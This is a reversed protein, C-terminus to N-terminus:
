VLCFAVQLVSNMQAEVDVSMEVETTYELNMVLFGEEEAEEGLGIRVTSHLGDLLRQM